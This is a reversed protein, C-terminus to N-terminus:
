LAELLLISKATALASRLEGDNGWFGAGTLPEIRQSVLLRRATHLRWDETEGQGAPAPAVPAVVNLLRVMKWALLYVGTPGGDAGPVFDWHGALRRVLTAQDGPLEGALSLRALLLSALFHGTGDAWQGPPQRSFVGAHRDLEKIVHSGGALRGAFGAIALNDLHYQLEGVQDRVRDPIGAGAKEPLSSLLEGTKELSQGAGQRIGPAFEHDAPTGGAEAVALADIRLIEAPVPGRPPILEGRRNHWDGLFRSVSEVLDPDAAGALATLRWAVVATDEAAEVEPRSGLFMRGRDIAAEVENRVSLPLPGGTRQALPVLLSSGTGVVTVRSFALLAVLLAPGARWARNGTLLAKKKSTGSRDKM